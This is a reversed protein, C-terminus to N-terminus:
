RYSEYSFRVKCWEKAEEESVVRCEDPLDTKNALVLFPFNDKVDIDGHYFFENRWFDLEKFSEKNDVSFVLICIDTGRYYPTRLSRFREQGM